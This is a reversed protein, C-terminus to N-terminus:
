KVSSAKGLADPTFAAEDLGTNFKVSDFILDTRTHEVPSAMELRRTGWVGSEHKLDWARLERMLRGQADYMQAHLLVPVDQAIWAYIFKYQSRDPAVPQLEIKYTPHGEMTETDGLLAYTFDDLAREAIDEYTFDSDAFKESQERSSLSRVRDIAPTYLYQHDEAGAGNISLLAVGRIEAPETFRVITKSGGNTSLRELVFKKHSEHGSADFVNLTAHFVADHSKDQSYVAAVIARADVAPATKGAPTQSLAVAVFVFIGAIAPCVFRPSRNM